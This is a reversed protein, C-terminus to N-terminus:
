AFEIPVDGSDLGAASLLERKEEETEGAYVAKWLGEVTDTPVEFGLEESYRKLRKLTLLNYRHQRLNEVVRVQM